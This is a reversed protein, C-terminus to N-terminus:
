RVTDIHIHSPFMERVWILQQQFDVLVTYSLFNLRETSTGYQFRRHQHIVKHIFNEVRGQLGWWRFHVTVLKYATMYPCNGNHLEKQLLSHPPHMLFLNQLHDSMQITWYLWHSCFSLMCSLIVVNAIGPLFFFKSKLYGEKLRLLM